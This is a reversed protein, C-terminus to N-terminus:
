LAAQSFPLSLAKISATYGAQGAQWWCLPKERGEGRPPWAIYGREREPYQARACACACVCVCVCVPTCVCVCVCVCLCSQGRGEGSGVGWRWSDKDLAMQFYRVRDRQSKNQVTILKKNQFIVKNYIYIHIYTYIFLNWKMQLIKKKKKGASFSSLILPFFYTVNCNGFHNKSEVSSPGGDLSCHVRSGLKHKALLPFM